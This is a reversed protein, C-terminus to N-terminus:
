NYNRLSPFLESLNLKFGPLLASTLEGDGTFQTNKEYKGSADLEYKMVSKKVPHVVWYEKIGFEEYLHFKLNLEKKNNSPSLIEVMIDPAGICGRSDLKNVDCVVCIDPQVVTTVAADDTSNHALRVDFPASFVECSKNKLYIYLEGFLTRSVRQHALSPGAMRYIHGRILELREDIEWRLYQAYSYFGTLDIDSLKAIPKDEGNPYPKPTAQKKDKTM